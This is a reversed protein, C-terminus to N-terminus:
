RVQAKVVSRFSMMSCPSCASCLCHAERGISLSTARTMKKCYGCMLTSISGEPDRDNCAVPNVVNLFTGGTAPPHIVAPRASHQCAVRVECGRLDYSAQLSSTPCSAPTTRKQASCRFRSLSTGFSLGVTGSRVWYQANTMDNRRLGRRCSAAAAVVM